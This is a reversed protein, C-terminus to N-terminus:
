GDQDSTQTERITSQESLGPHELREPSTSLPRATVDWRLWKALWIAIIYGLAAGGTVDHWWHANTVVRSVGVVTAFLFWMWGWRFHLSMVTAYAFSATTHGSPFSNFFRGDPRAEGVALKIAEIAIQTLLLTLILRTFLRRELWIGILGGIMLALWYDSSVKGAIQGMLKPLDMPQRPMKPLFALGLSVLFVSCAVLLWIRQWDLRLHKVM